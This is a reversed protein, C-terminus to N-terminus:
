QGCGCSTCFKAATKDGENEVKDKCLKKFKETGYLNHAPRQSSKNYSNVTKLKAHNLASM